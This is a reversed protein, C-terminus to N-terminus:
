EGRNKPDWEELEKAVASYRRKQACELATLATYRDRVSSDAGRRLLLKVADLNGRRAAHHLPTLGDFDTAGIKAGGGLLEKIIAVSGNAAACHLPTQGTSDEAHVNVQPYENLLFETEDKRGNMAAYHLATQGAYDQKNVDAGRNMLARIIGSAGVVAAQHIAGETNPDASERLLGNVADLDKNRCAEVLRNSLLWNVADLDNDQYAKDLQSEKMKSDVSDACTRCSLKKTDATGNGSDAVRVLGTWRSEIANASPRRDRDRDLMERCLKLMGLHWPAKVGRRRSEFGDLLDHVRDLSRAYSKVANNSAVGPPDLSQKKLDQYDYDHYSHSLLMELIVAGLSFIDGSRGRTRGEVVDVEPACYSPTRGKSWGPMTTPVTNGLSMHATGFDALLVEGGNVLVNQPKIDRHRIGLRHIHAVVCILCGIWRKQLRDPFLHHSLDGKDAHDMIIYFNLGSRFEPKYFYATIVRVAHAHRAAFMVKAEKRCIAMLRDRQTNADITITKKVASKEGKWPDCAGIVLTVNPAIQPENVGPVNQFPLDGDKTYVVLEGRKTSLRSETTSAM